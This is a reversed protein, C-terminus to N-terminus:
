HKPWFKSIAELAIILLMGFGQIKWVLKEIATTRADLKSLEGPTGNGFLRKEFRNVTTDLNKLREAMIGLSVGEQIATSIDEM